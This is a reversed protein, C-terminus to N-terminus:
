NKIKKMIREFFSDAIPYTKESYVKGTLTRNEKTTLLCQISVNGFAQDLESIHIKFVGQNIYDSEFGNQVLRKEIHNRLEKFYVKIPNTIFDTPRSSEKFLDIEASDISLENISKSIWDMMYGKDYYMLTSIYKQTVENPLSNISRIRTM